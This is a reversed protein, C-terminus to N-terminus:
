SDAGIEKTHIRRTQRYADSWRWSAGGLSMVEYRRGGAAIVDGPEPDSTLEEALVLFDWVHARVKLGSEDSVEYDTKGFTANVTLVECARRYEVPSTCHLTRMAELWEQGRQLLDAM